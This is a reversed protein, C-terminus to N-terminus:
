ALARKSTRNSYDSPLKKPYSAIPSASGTIPKSNLWAEADVKRILVKRSGVTRTLLNGAKIEEYVFTRRVGDAACFENVTFAHKEAATAQRKM